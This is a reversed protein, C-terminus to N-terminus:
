KPLASAGGVVPITIKTADLDVMLKSGAKPWLTFEKDSSLIMLAIRKGAPIIQDDPQLDFTLDVFKGPTLPKQPAMSHYDGGKTLSEANQPDAWGRTILSQIIPGDTYPLQVLYVSLNVAKVNAAMRIKIQPTGSIHLPSKLEPLAFILRNPSEEAKALMPASLSVDDILTEVGQKGASKLVLGGVKNGSKTLSLTVPKAAPNPYDPYAVLQGAPGGQVRERVIFAKPGNEIGNQVGYLFRTFWKNQLEFTPDGGHGGQHFYQILPVKGKLASSIRVAHEPVVNWDNFGHAMMVACKINGAFKLLDREAWFANYDGTKRDMNKAMEGDRYLKDGVARNASNGSNIFDYLSDIDEGLYGGPSRVLGNSRYYHYYSTNPAVPIICELGKVGTTAAALPITGNYSTGMMGVKGTSWSAVVETGGEVATYGKARGNLWDIVAKPAMREPLGGVTPSGSSLGTGPAESHVVAFGRPVWTGVMGSSIMTRNASYPVNPHFTRPPSNEGLEQKVNWNVDGNGTGAFYPSSEYIVPVKLGDTQTQKQRTVDVHVRDRKGNKDSDFDTEVFLSERIWESSQSFEPVAQAQGDQFVPKVSQAHASSLLLIVGVPFMFLMM